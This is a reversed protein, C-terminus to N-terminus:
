VKNNQIKKYNQLLKFLIIVTVTGVVVDTVPQALFVGMDAHNTLLRPLLWVLPVLLLLTCTIALWFTLVPRNMALLTYQCAFQLTAVFFVMFSLRVMPVAYDVMPGDGLVLRVVPETLFMMVLWVLVSWVFTAALLLRVNTRVRQWKGAGLNFSTIPEAGYAMGYVPFYFFDHLMMVLAITGVGWDGALHYLTRNYVGMQVVQALLVVMPTAGLALCPAIYRWELCLLNMRPHLNGVRGLMVVAMILSTMEAMTTAWAAGAIGWGFLFIFIPDLVMNLIIGSAMVLAAETSYGQVLLFSTLMGSVICLANGPTAIRLYCEAMASTQPSGGFLRILEPCFVEVLLLTLMALLLSFALMSGLTREARDHHGQGLLLGVHPSIGMDTLAALAIMIYLIPEYVGSATFALQGVEPIHAIWIRDVVNNLLMLLQQLVVPMTM